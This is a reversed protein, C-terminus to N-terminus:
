QGKVFIAKAQITKATVPVSYIQGKGYGGVYTTTNDGSSIILVGNAGIKAARNKLEQIAYNMSEQESWGDHSSANILGIIEYAFSPPELYIKVQESVVPPRVNGIIITSGSATACGEMVMLALAVLPLLLWYTKM